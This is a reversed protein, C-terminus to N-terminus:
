KTETTLQKYIVKLIDDSQEITNNLIICENGTLYYYNILIRGDEITEVYNIIHKHLISTGIKIYRNGNSKNLANLLKNVNINNLKKKTDLYEMNIKYDNDMFKYNIVIDYLKIDDVYKKFLLCSIDNLNYIGNLFLIYFKDKNFKNLRSLIKKMKKTFKDNNIIIKKNAINYSIRYKLLMEVKDNETKVYSMAVFNKAKIVNKGIKIFHNM